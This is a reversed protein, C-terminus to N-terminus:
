RYFSHQLYQPSELFFVKALYIINTCVLISKGISLNHTIQFMMKPVKESWFIMQLFFNSFIDDDLLILM